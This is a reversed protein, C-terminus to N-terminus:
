PYSSRRLEEHLLVPAQKLDRVAADEGLTAIMLWFTVARIMFFPM